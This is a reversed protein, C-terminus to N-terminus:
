LVKYRQLSESWVILHFQGASAELTYKKVGDETNVERLLKHFLDM